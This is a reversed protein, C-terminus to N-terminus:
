CLVLVALQAGDLLVKDLDEKTRAVLILQAGQKAYNVAVCAGAGRSAGTILARKGELLGGASVMVLCGAAFIPRIVLLAQNYTIERYLM